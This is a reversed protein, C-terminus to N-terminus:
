NKNTELNMRTIKYLGDPDYYLIRGHLLRRLKSPALNCKDALMTITSVASSKNRDMLNDFVFIEKM